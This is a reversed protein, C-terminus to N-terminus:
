AAAMTGRGGVGAQDTRGVGPFFDADRNVQPAAVFLLKAIVQILVNPLGRVVGSTVQGVRVKRLPETGVFVIQCRDLPEGRMEDVSWGLIRKAGPNWDTILGDGDTAIIALDVASGIIARQHIERARWAANAARLHANEAELQTQRQRLCNIELDAVCTVGSAQEVAYGANDVDVSDTTAAM